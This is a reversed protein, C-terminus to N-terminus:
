SRIILRRGAWREAAQVGGLLGTRNALRMGASALSLPSPPSGLGGDAILELYWDITDRLTRDLSRPRYGLEGRAKRSSYRWSQAMLELGEARVLGPVGLSEAARAVAATQPPLVAVPHHVGSLEAVRELLAVWRVDHGGLVYREGPGGREGALLHGKAVDLVDVANTAGDIVAPVRGRLYNGIM